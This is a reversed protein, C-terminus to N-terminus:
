AQEDAEQRRSKAQRRYRLFDPIYLLGAGIAAATTLGLLTLTVWKPMTPIFVIAAMTVYFLATVVKGFWKAGEIRIGKTLLYGGLLLMVADKLILLVFFPWYRHLKIAMVICVTVQTLKDAVPDLVKGLPSVWDFRRALFGDLLDTLGSLVLVIGAGFTEGGLMLVAFVPILLIRLTSLINPIHRM